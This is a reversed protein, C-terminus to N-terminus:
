YGADTRNADNVGNVGNAGNQHQQGGPSSGASHTRSLPFRAPGGVDAPPAGFPNGGIPTIIHGANMLAAATNPPQPRRQRNPSASPVSAAPTHSLRGAASALDIFSSTLLTAPSPSRHDDLPPRFVNQPSYSRDQHTGQPALQRHRVPGSRRQQRAPEQAPQPSDIRSPTSSGSDTRPISDSIHGNVQRATPERLYERPSSTGPRGRAAEQSAAWEQPSAPTGQTLHPSAPPMFRPSPSPNLYQAYTYPTSQDGPLNSVVPSPQYQQTAQSTTALSQVPDPVADVPTDSYSSSSAHNGNLTPPPLRPNFSGYAVRTDPHFASHNGNPIPSATRANSSRHGGLSEVINNDLYSMELATLADTNPPESGMNSDGYVM